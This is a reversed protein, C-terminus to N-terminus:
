YFKWNYMSEFNNFFYLIFLYARYKQKQIKIKDDSKAKAEEVIKDLREVQELMVSKELELAYEEYNENKKKQFLFPESYDVWERAFFKFSQM